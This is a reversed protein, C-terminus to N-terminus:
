AKLKDEIWSKVSAIAIGINEPQSGGAQAMDARGGGKGGVQQAVFNVLEGAKFTQTLNDTVGTIVFVKNDQVTALVIIAKQLKAKLEDMLKPLAKTDVADIKCALVKFDQVSEAQSALDAGASLMLKAKISELEKELSRQKDLMQTIKAMLGEPKSQLAGALNSVNLVFEQVYNLAAQGTVAEIRRIGAAVGAESIIKFLGIQGTSHVHTGGCLEISFDGMKLVRVEHGYKEGFLAM